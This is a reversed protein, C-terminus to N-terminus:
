SHKCVREKLIAKLFVASKEIHKLEKVANIFYKDRCNISQRLQTPTNITELFSVESAQKSSVLMDATDSISVLAQLAQKKANWNNRKDAHLTEKLNEIDLLLRFLVYYTCEPKQKERIKRVIQTLSELSFILNNTVFILLELERVTRYYWHSGPTLFFYLGSHIFKTLVLSLVM